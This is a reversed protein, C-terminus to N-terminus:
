EYNSTTVFMAAQTTLDSNGNPGHCPPNKLMELMKEGM